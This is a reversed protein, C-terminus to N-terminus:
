SLKEFLFERIEKKDYIEEAFSKVILKVINYLDDRIESIKIKKIGSVIKKRKEKYKKYADYLNGSKLEEGLIFCLFPEKLEILPYLIKFDKRLKELDKSKLERKYLERLVSNNNFFFLIFDDPKETEISVLRPVTIKTNSNIEENKKLATYVISFLVFSAEKQEKFLNPITLSYFKKILESLNM